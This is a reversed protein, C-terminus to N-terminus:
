LNGVVDGDDADVVVLGDAKVRGRRERANAGIERLPGKERGPEEVARDPM